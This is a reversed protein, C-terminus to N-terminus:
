RESYPKEPVAAPITPMSSSAATSSRSSSLANTSRSRNRWSTRASTPQIRIHSLQETTCLAVGVLYLSRSPSRRSISRILVRPLGRTYSPLWCGFGHRPTM